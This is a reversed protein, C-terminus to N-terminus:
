PCTLIAATDEESRNVVVLWWVTTTKVTDILFVASASRRGSMSESKAPTYGHSQIPSSLALKLASLPPSSTAGIRWCSIKFLCGTSTSSKASATALHCNLRM